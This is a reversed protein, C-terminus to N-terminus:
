AKKTYAAVIVITTGNIKGEIHKPNNTLHINKVLTGRKATFNMGKVDLDKILTISDGESLVIGNSGLPQPDDDDSTQVLGSEAWAKVEDELYATDLLEQAWVEGADALNHLMRYAVVQVAPTPSWIADNLCRWANADVAAASEVQAKLPESILVYGDASDDGGSVKMMVLPASADGSLECVQNSRQQLVLEISM